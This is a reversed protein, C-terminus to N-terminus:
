LFVLEIYYLDSEDRSSNRLLILTLVFPIINLIIKFGLGGTLLSSTYGLYKGGALASNSLMVMLLSSFRIGLIAILFLIIVKAKRSLSKNKFVM